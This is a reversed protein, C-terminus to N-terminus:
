AAATTEGHRQAETPTEKRGFGSSMGVRKESKVKRKESCPEAADSSRAEYKKSRVQGLCLRAEASRGEYKKSRAEMSM